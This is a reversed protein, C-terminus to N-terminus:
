GGSLYINIAEGMNGMITDIDEQHDKVVERHYPNPKTGPHNVRSAFVEVGNVVFRLVRAKKPLIEHPMTGERVFHGYFAGDNTRAGQRIELAQHNKDGVIQFITSKALKGTIKPTADAMPGTGKATVFIRGIERLGENVTTGVMPDIKEARQAFEDFDSTDFDIM